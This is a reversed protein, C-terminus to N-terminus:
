SSSDDDALSLHSVDPVIPPPQQRDVGLSAGPPALTWEDLHQFMPAQVEEPEVLTVGPPDLKLSTGALIEDVKEGAVPLRVGPETAPVGTAPVGAAAPQERDAGTQQASAPAPRTAAGGTATERAPPRPMPQVYVVLGHRRLVQRYKEAQAEDLRNRLVVPQGSFMRQVQEPSAKFLAQANKRATQEDVGAVSEGKFVLQFM